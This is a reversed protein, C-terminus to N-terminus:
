PVRLTVIRDISDGDQERRVLLIIAQGSDFQGMMRELEDV